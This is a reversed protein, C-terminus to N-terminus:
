VRYAGDFLEVVPTAVPDVASWRVRVHGLKGDVAIRTRERLKKEVMSDRKPLKAKPLATCYLNTTRGRLRAVDGPQPLGRGSTFPTLVSVPDAILLRQWVEPCDANPSGHHPVKFLDALTTEQFSELVALWGEGARGSHELDAGLLVRRVGVEVWLAVSTQNPTQNALRQQPQGAQPLLKGIDDLFLKITGDSPSLATVKAPFRHPGRNLQLLTRNQVAWQPSVLRRHLARERREMLLDLVRGFEEVGSGAQIAKSELKVLTLFHETGLAASCAFQAEPFDRLASAIGGIHDDHWHTALLLVVGDLANQGLGRLYEVAVPITKGPGQCSDIVCWTNYGLHLLVCEGRGPGIVSVEFEDERPPVALTM